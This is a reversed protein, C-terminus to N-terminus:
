KLRLVTRGESREATVENGGELLRVLAPYGDARFTVTFRKAELRPDGIVLQHTNYRNFEAVIESLPADEFELRREQWALARAVEVPAVPAVAAAARGTVAQTPITAREGAVLLPTETDAQPMLLSGGQVSDNVQVKGETVLVEVAASRWRVNFATGVARVAVQGASVIFPRDPNKAVSFHAEGRVLRVRREGATYQVEIASDTNVQVVSGDPLDLKQFAGVTTVIDEHLNEGPVRPWALSLFVVAAAAARGTVAQLPITARENAVLLPTEADAQAMLLSGGQVSDNVQVKGETVLVEVATSRLRVNFATGVARVAVQGASVIFPRDPNKAVSFHAEGRVLRVRRE